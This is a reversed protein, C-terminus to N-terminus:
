RRRGAQDTGGGGKAADAPNPASPGGMHARMQAKQEEPINLNDIVKQRNTDAQKIEDQTPQRNDGGSCGAMTLALLSLAILGGLLKRAEIM